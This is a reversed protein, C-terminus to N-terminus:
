AATPPIVVVPCPAHQVVQQSVSGLMLGKFGGRGRTGVVLLDAGRATEILAPAPDQQVVVREITPRSETQDLAGNLLRDLTETAVKEFWSPDDITTGLEVLSVLYPVSWTHVVELTAGRRAAEDIAWLLASSSGDSDDVGVVVRNSLETTM